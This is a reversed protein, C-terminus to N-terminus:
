KEKPRTLSCSAIIHAAIDKALRAADSNGDSCVSEIMPRIIATLDEWASAAQPLDRSLGAVMNDIQTLVGVIDPLPKWEPADDKWHKEWLIAALRQAYGFADVPQATYVPESTVKYEASYHKGPLGFPQLASFTFRRETQGLEMHLTHLWGVPERQPQAAGRLLRAIEQKDANTLLGKELSYLLYEVSGASSSFHPESM